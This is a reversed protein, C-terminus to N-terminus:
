FGHHSCTETQGFLVHEDRNASLLAFQLQQGRQARENSHAELEKCRFIRCIEQARVLYRTFFHPFHARPTFRAHKREYLTSLYIEDDVNWCASVLALVRVSEGNAAVRDIHINREDGIALECFCEDSRKLFLFHVSQFHFTPTLITVCLLFGTRLSM